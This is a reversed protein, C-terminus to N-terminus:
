NNPLFKGPNYGEIGPVFSRTTKLAKLFAWSLSHKFIEVTFGSSEVMDRLARRNPMFWNFPDGTERGKSFHLLPMSHIFEGHPLIKAKVDPTITQDYITFDIIPSDVYLESQTVDYIKDLALLPHRLHYFVGPFLVIDFVGHVAADLDYVSGRVYRCNDVELLDRVKYYGTVEPDDPGLSVLEAAGRRICEFGFFGNWPAIDLVRKGRLNRDVGMLDLSGVIDKHGATKHGPFVEWSQYTYIGEFFAPISFDAPPDTRM